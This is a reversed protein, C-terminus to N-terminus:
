ISTGPGQAALDTGYGPCAVRTKCRQAHLPDEDTLQPWIYSRMSVPPFRAEFIDLVVVAMLDYDNPVKGREALSEGLSSLAMGYCHLAKESNRTGSGPERALDAYAAALVAWRLAYRGEMSVEKFLSPLHELFGPSSTQNCPYMVYKDMFQNVAQDETSPKLHEPVQKLWPLSAGLKPSGAEETALDSSTTHALSSRRSREDTDVSRSRRHLSGTPSSSPLSSAAAHAHEIIRRTEHRFVLTAEDRYGECIENRKLCRQCSPRGEDCRM